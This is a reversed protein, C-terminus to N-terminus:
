KQEKSQFEAEILEMYNETHVSRNGLVFEVFTVPSDKAPLDKIYKQYFFDRNRLWDGYVKAQGKLDKGKAQLKHLENGDVLNETEWIALLLMTQPIDLSCEKATEILIPWKDKHKIEM